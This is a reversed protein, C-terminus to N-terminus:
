EDSVSNSLANNQEFYPVAKLIILKFFEGDSGQPIISNPTRTENPQSIAFCVCLKTNGPRGNLRLIGIMKTSTPNVFGYAESVKYYATNSIKIKFAFRSDGTNRISIYFHDGASLCRAIPPSLSLAEM